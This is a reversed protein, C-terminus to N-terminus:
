DYEDADILWDNPGVQEIEFGLERMKSAVTQEGGSFNGGHLPEADPHQLNHAVGAIAKSDYRRGDWVIFYSRAKAFRHKTLFEDAGLRDYEQLAALVADRSTLDALGM